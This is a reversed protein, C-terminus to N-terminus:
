DDSPSIFRYGPRKQKRPPAQPVPVANRRPVYRPGPRPVGMADALEKRIQEGGRALAEEDPGPPPFERDAAQRLAEIMDQPVHPEGPQLPERVRFDLWAKRGVDCPAIEGRGTIMVWELALLDAVAENRAAAVAPDGMTRPDNVRFQYVARGVDGVRDYLFAMINWAIPCLDEVM